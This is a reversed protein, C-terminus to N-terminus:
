VDRLLTYIQDKLQLRSKKLDELHFDSTHEIELEVRRVERNIRHYEDYLGEFKSNSLTLEDIKHKYEPFEDHLEHSESIM